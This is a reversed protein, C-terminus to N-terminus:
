RRGSRYSKELAALKEPGLSEGLLSAIKEFVDPPVWRPFSDVAAECEAVHEYFSVGAATWLPQAPQRACWAVYGYIKGLEDEDAKEHAERCREVLESFLSYPADCEEIEARLDPFLEMARHRWASM